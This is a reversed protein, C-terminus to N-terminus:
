GVLLLLLAALPLLLPAAGLLLVPVRLLRVVWVLWGLRLLVLVRVLVVMLWSAAVRWLLWAVVLRARVRRTWLLPRVGGALVVVCCMRM